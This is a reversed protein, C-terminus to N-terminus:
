QYGDTNLLFWWGWLTLIHALTRSDSASPVLNECSGFWIAKLIVALKQNKDKISHLVEYEIMAFIWKVPFKKEEAREHIIWSRTPFEM